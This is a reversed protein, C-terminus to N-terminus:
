RRIEFECDARTTDEDIWTCMVPNRQRRALQTVCRKRAELDPNALCETLAALDSVCSEHYYRDEIPKCLDGNGARIAAHWLCRESADESDRSSCLAAAVIRPWPLLVASLVVVSTVALARRATRPWKRPASPARPPTAAPALPAVIAPQRQLERLAPLGEWLYKTFVFRPVLGTLAFPAGDAIAVYVLLVSDLVYLGLALQLAASSQRSRVRHGLGAYLVALVIAYYSWGQRLLWEITGLEALLGAVAGIAAIFYLLNVVEAVRVAPDGASGPLPVGDRQLHLKRGMLGGRLEIFVYSGDALAFGAGTRLEAATEVRGIPQADLQLQVNRWGRSWSVCLRQAGGRELPYTQMAM